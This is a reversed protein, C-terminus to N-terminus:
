GRRILRNAAPRPASQTGRSSRCVNTEKSLESPIGISPYGIEDTVLAGNCGFHNVRFTITDPRGRHGNTAQKAIVRHAHVRAGKMRM